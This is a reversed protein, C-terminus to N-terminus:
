LASGNSDIRGNKGARRREEGGVDGRLPIPFRFIPQVAIGDHAIGRGVGRVDRWPDRSGRQVGPCIGGGVDATELLPGQWAPNCRGPVRAGAEGDVEVEGIVGRMLHREIAEIPIGISRSVLSHIHHIGVVVYKVRPLYGAEHLTLIQDPIDAAV